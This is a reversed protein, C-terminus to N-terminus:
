EMADGHQDTIGKLLPVPQYKPMTKDLTKIFQEWDVGMASANGRLSKVHRNKEIRSRALNWAMAYFFYDTM